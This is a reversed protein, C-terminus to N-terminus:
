KHIHYYDRVEDLNMFSHPAEEDKTIHKYGLSFPNREIYAILRDSADIIDRRGAYRKILKM